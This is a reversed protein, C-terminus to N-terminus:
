RRDWRDLAAQSAQARSQSRRALELSILREMQETDGFCRKLLQREAQSTRPGFWRAFLKV